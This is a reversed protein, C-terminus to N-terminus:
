QDTQVYIKSIRFLVYDLQIGNKKVATINIYPVIKRGIFLSIEVGKALMVDDYSVTLINHDNAFTLADQLYKDSTNFLFFLDSDKCQKIDLYDTQQISIKKNQLGQPYNKAIDNALVAASDSDVRNRILCINVRGDKKYRSENMLVFRPLIKSYIGLIDTDYNAAYSSTSLLLLLM